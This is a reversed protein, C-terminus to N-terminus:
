RPPASLALRVGFGIFAVGCLRDLAQKVRPRTLWARAWNVLLVILGLWVIGEAVHIAGLALAGALPALGDPLFAPMVSLYFVGIKPNLLNTVLGTRFAPWAGGVPTGPTVTAEAVAPRRAQWLIRLGLWILYLVGAIRLIEFALRSAALVATVGLASAM